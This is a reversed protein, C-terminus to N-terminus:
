EELSLKGGVGKSDAERAREGHAFGITQLRRFLMEIGISNTGDLQDTLLLAKRM